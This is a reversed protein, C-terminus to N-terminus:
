VRPESSCHTMEPANEFVHRVGVMRAMELLCCQKKRQNVTMRISYASGPIPGGRGEPPPGIIVVVRRAAPEM